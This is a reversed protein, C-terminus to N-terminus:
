RAVAESAGPHCHRWGERFGRLKGARQWTRVALAYPWEAVRRSRWCYGLDRAAERANGLIMTRFFGVKGPSLTEIDAQAFAEGYCRKFAQRLTYNHSHIVRANEAYAVGWGHRRLRRSWEDDESYQLDERFPQEEWAARNVASNAMSFFHEWRSSERADGYCREYDAAYVARCGPRPDQRGFIAGVGADSKALLERLWHPNAPQCDSNLFVVWEGGAERMGRNLVLGPVYEEAKIEILKRPHAERILDVTGDTSGSDIHILEIDDDVDQRHVASITAGILEADNKSRIVISIM